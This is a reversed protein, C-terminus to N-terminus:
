VTLSQEEAILHAEEMIWAILCIFLGAFTIGGFYLQFSDTPILWTLWIKSLQFLHCEVWDGIMWLGVHKLRQASEATLINGSGYNQFLRLLTWCGLAWWAAHLTVLRRALSERDPRIGSVGMDTISRQEVYVALGPGALNLYFRNQDSDPTQKTAVQSSERPGIMVVPLVWASLLTGLALIMSAISVFKLFNSL